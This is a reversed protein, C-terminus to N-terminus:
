RRISARLFGGDVSWKDAGNPAACSRLAMVVYNVFMTSSANKGIQVAGSKEYTCGGASHDVCNRGNKATLHEEGDGAADTDDNQKTLLIQGTILPDCGSSMSLVTRVRADVDIVDGPRLGELKVRYVIRSVQTKDGEDETQDIGLKGTSVVTYNKEDAVAAGAGKGFRTVYLGGKSQEVEMVDFSRAKTGPAEAAVVLNVYKEAAKDLDTISVEPLPLACHHQSETCTHDVWDGLKRGKADNPRDGLVFTAEFRPDYSYPSAKLEKSNCPTNKADGSQGAVDKTNCRSLVVEGRIRLREDPTLSSVKVSYIVRPEKRAADTIAVGYRREKTARAFTVSPNPGLGGGGGGSGGGGGGSPDPSGAPLPAVAEPPAKTAEDTAYALEDEEGLGDDPIAVGCGALAFAFLVISRM